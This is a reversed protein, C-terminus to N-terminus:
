NNRVSRLPVADHSRFLEYPGYGGTKKAFARTGKAPRFGLERLQSRTKLWSPVHHWQTFQHGRMAEDPEMESGPCPAPLQEFGHLADQRRRKLWAATRAEFAEHALRHADTPPIRPEGVRVYPSQRNRIENRPLDEFGPHVAPWVQLSAARVEQRLAYARAEAVGKLRQAHLPEVGNGVLVIVLSWTRGTGGSYCYARVSKGEDM